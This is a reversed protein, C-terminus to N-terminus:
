EVKGCILALGKAYKSVDEPVLDYARRIKEGIEKLEETEGSFLEVEVECIKESGEPTEVLGGDVSVEFIGTGTDIRYRKRRIRTEMLSTLSKGGAADLLDEGIRSERFIDLDPEDGAAPVTLEERVHLGEESKGQWKVTAIYHDGEKRIRYAIGSKALDRDETDYYHATLDIEERSDEEEADSFLENRWIRSATEEDPIRYKLEIEMDCAESTRRIMEEAAKM